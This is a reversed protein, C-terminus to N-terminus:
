VRARVVESVVSVKTCLAAYWEDGEESEVGGWRGEVRSGVEILTEEILTEGAEEKPAANSGNSGNSRASQEEGSEESLEEWKEGNKSSQRRTGKDDEDDGSVVEWSGKGEILVPRIASAPVKKEKDGDDYHIDYTATQPEEEGAEGLHVRKIRGRYYEGGDFKAEVVMGVKMVNKKVARRYKTEKAKWQRESVEAQMEVMEQGSLENRRFKARRERDALAELRVREEEAKKTAEDEEEQMRRAQEQMRRRTRAEDDDDDSDDSEGRWAAGRGTTGGGV